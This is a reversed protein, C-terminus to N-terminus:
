RNEIELTQTIRLVCPKALPDLPVGSEVQVVIRASGIVIRLQLDNAAQEIAAAPRKKAFRGRKIPRAIWDFDRIPEPRSVSLMTVRLHEFMELIVVVD